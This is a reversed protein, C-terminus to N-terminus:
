FYMCTVAYDDFILRNLIYFYQLSMTKLFLLPPIEMQQQIEFRTAYQNKIKTLIQHLEPLSVFASYDKFLQSM